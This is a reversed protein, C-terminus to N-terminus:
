PVPATATVNVTVAGSPILLVGLTGTVTTTLNQRYAQVKATTNTPAGVLQASYFATTTGAPAEAAVEVM